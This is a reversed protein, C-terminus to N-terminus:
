VEIDAALVVLAAHVAQVVDVGLLLLLLRASRAPREGFVPVAIIRSSNSLWSVALSPLLRPRTNPRIAILTSPRLAVSHRLRLKIIIIRPIISHMLLPPLNNPNSFNTNIHRSIASQYHYNQITQAAIGGNLSLFALVNSWSNSFTWVGCYFGRSARVDCYILNGANAMVLCDVDVAM